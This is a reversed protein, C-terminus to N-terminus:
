ISAKLFNKAGGIASQCRKQKKYRAFDLYSRDMGQDDAPRGRRGGRM